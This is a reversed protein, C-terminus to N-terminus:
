QLWLISELLTVNIVQNQSTVKYLRILLSKIRMLKNFIMAASLFLKDVTEMASMGDEFKM